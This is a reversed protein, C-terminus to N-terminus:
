EGGLFREADIAAQCGIGAASIAQRYRKDAVDGAAFVGPINTMTHKSTVIYGEEDLTIQGKFLATVPEHGIGLFFGEAPITTLTGDVVNKVVVAELKKDGKLEEIGSNWVFELKPNAFARDQMPKSARLRDRRHVVLVKSAFRTLFMAEEIASDGGGVVVVQKDKFFFGDCTACASVGRGRLRTESPINLWRAMAGTAIIVAKALYEQGGSRVKFPRSSFDVEDVVDMIIETGFREAQQRMLDMLEPGMIGTPFGPFNEVDTTITLQGGPQLGEFLLPKLGARAAYMAATYGAPGSGIIILERM